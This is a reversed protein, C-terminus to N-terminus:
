ACGHDRGSGSRRPGSAEAACPSTVKFASSDLPEMRGLFRPKIVEALWGFEQRMVRDLLFVLEEDDRCWGISLYRKYREGEFTVSYKPDADEALASLLRRARRELLPPKSSQAQTLNPLTLM